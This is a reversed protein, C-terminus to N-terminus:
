ARRKRPARPADGNWAWAVMQQDEHTLPEGAFGGFFEWRTFGALRFLLELEPRYVWRQTTRFGAKRAVKGAEDLERIEIESGQCQGVVDKYRSDWMQVRRGTDPRRVEIEMTPVGDPEAWYKPGPYSMHVVFAGGRRLHRRARRLVALQADTTDAHAFANFASIVRAYRRPLTFAGMDAVALRPAFGRAKAKKRALALMPRYLDVGDADVGAGLLALLVRGTGCALDLVPGGAECGVKLWFPLDFDLGSFMLDYLEPATYISPTATM